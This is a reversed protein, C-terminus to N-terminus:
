TNASPILRYCYFKGQAPIDEPVTNSEPTTPVSTTHLALSRVLLPTAQGRHRAKIAERRKRREEILTAEDTSHRSTPQTIKDEIIGDKQATSDNKSDALEAELSSPVYETPLNGLEGASIDILQIQNIRTEADRKLQAAAVPSHGRDSVSQERSLRSKSERDGKDGQERWRRERKEGGHHGHVGERRSRDQVPSWSRITPPKDPLRGSADSEEYRFGRDLGHSRDSNDYPKNM